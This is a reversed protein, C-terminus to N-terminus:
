YQVYRISISLFVAEFATSDEMAELFARFRFARISFSSYRSKSQSLYFWDDWHLCGSPDKLPKHKAVFFNGFPDSFRSKHQDIIRAERSKRSWRLCNGSFLHATKRILISSTSLALDFLEGVTSIYCGYPSAHPQTPSFITAPLFWTKTVMAPIIM